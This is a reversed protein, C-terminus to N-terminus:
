NQRDAARDERRREALGQKASRGGRGKVKAYLSVAAVLVFAVIVIVWSIATLKAGSSIVAVPLAVGAALAKALEPLVGFDPDDNAAFGFSALLALCLVATASVTESQVDELSGFIM